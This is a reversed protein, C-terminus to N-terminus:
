CSGGTSTVVLTGNNYLKPVDYVTNVQLKHAVAFGFTTSEATMMKALQAALATPDNTLVFAGPFSLLTGTTGFKVQNVQAPSVGFATLDFCFPAPILAAIFGANSVNSTASTLTIIVGTPNAWTGYASWHTNAWTVFAGPTTASPSYAPASAIGNFWAAPINYELGLPNNPLVFTFINNSGVVSTPPFQIVPFPIVVTPMVPLTGGLGDADYAFQNPPSSTAINDTNAIAIDYETQDQKDKIRLIKISDPTPPTSTNIATEEAYGIVRGNQVQPIFWFSNIIVINQTQITRKVTQPDNPGSNLGTVYNPYIYKQGNVGLVQNSQIFNVM